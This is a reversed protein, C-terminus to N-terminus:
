DERNRKFLRDFLSTKKKEQTLLKQSIAELDQTRALLATLRDFQEKIQIDKNDITNQQREIVLHLNTIQSQLNEILIDKSKLQEQLLNPNLETLGETSNPKINETSNPNLETLNPNLLNLETSYEPNLLPKIPKIDEKNENKDEIIILTQKRNGIYEEVTELKHLRKYVAQVSINNLKAYEAVSLKIM